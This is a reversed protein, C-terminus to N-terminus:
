ERVKKNPKQNKNSFAWLAKDITRMDLGSEESLKRCYLVYDWWFDFDYQNPLNEDKIGLSWLARFDLIPYKEKHFFHLFVSATPWLVGDLLTLIEIRLKENSHNLAITTVDRILQEDNIECRSKSRDTKWKCVKIFQDKSLFGKEKVDIRMSTTIETELENKSYDYFSSWDELDSIPFELQLKLTM